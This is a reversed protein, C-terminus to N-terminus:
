IYRVVAYVIFAVSLICLGLFVALQCNYLAHTRM